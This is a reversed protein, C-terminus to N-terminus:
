RAGRAGTPRRTWYDASLIDLRGERNFDAVAVSESYGPDIMQVNFAVDAPRSAGPAPGGPPQAATQAALLIRMELVSV